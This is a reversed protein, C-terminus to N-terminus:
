ATKLCCLFAFGADSLLNMSDQRQPLPAGYDIDFAAVCLGCRKMCKSVWGYGAFLEIFDYNQAPAM